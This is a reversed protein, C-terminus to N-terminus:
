LPEDPIPLGKPKPSRLPEAPIPLGTPKTAESEAQAAEQAAKAEARDEWISARIWEIQERGYAKAPDRADARMIFAGYHAFEADTIVKRLRWGRWLEGWAIRGGLVWMVGSALFKLPTAQLLLATRRIEARQDLHMDDFRRDFVECLRRGKDAGELTADAIDERLEDTRRRSAFASDTVVHPKASGLMTNEVMRARETIDVGSERIVDRDFQGGDPTGKPKRKRMCPRYGPSRGRAPSGRARRRM